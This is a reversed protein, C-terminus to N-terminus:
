LFVKCEWEIRPFNTKLEELGDLISASYANIFVTKINSCGNVLEVFSAVDYFHHICIFDMLSGRYQSVILKVLSAFSTNSNGCDIACINVNSVCEMISSVDEIQKPTRSFCLRQIFLCKTIHGNSVTKTFHITDHIVFQELSGQFKEMFHAISLLFNDYALICHLSLSKITRRTAILFELFSVILVSDGDGEGEDCLKVHM